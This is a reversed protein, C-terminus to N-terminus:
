RGKNGYHQYPILMDTHILDYLALASRLRGLNNRISGRILDLEAQVGSKVADVGDKELWQQFSANIRDVSTNINDVNSVSLQATLSRLQSIVFRVVENEHPKLSKEFVWLNIQVNHSRCMDNCFERVSSSVDEKSSEETLFEILKDARYDNTLDVEANKLKMEAEASQHETITNVSCSCASKVDSSFRGIMRWLIMVDNVCNEHTIGRELGSM